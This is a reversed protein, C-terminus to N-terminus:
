DQYDYDAIREIFFVGDVRKSAQYLRRSRPEGDKIIVDSFTYIVVEGDELSVEYVSEHNAYSWGQAFLNLTEAFHLLDGLQRERLEQIQAPVESPNLKKFEKFNITAYREQIREHFLDSVTDQAMSNFCIGVLLTLCLILKQM